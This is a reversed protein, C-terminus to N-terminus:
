MDVAFLISGNNKINIMNSNLITYFQTNNKYLYKTFDGIFLSQESKNINWHYVWRYYDYIIYYLKNNYTFHTFIGYIDPSGFIEMPAYVINNICEDIVSTINFFVIYKEFGPLYIDYYNTSLNDDIFNFERPLICKNNYTSEFKKPNIGDFIFKKCSGIDPFNDKSYSYGADFDYTEWNVIDGRVIDLNYIYNLIISHNIKIGSFIIDKPISWVKAKKRPFGEFKRKTFLSNIDLSYFKKCVRGMLILQKRNISNLIIHLLEDPLYQFM